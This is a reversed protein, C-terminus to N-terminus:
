ARVRSARSAPSARSAARVTAGTVERDGRDRRPGRDRDGFERRPREEEVWGEPKDLLAKMSLKIRGKEDTELVKVKVIQGEQLYDSSRRSASSPSRASTCCATRAPCSTSSPASTWSRAHGPRRLGQRDRGRGHDREIRKKAVQARTPRRGLRHHHHRRREIDITCGTEETLARITPAV